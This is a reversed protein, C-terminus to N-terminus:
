SGFLHGVHIYICSSPLVVYGWRISGLYQFTTFLRGYTASQAVSCRTSDLDRMVKWLMVKSCIPVQIILDRIHLNFIFSPPPASSWVKENNGTVYNCIILGSFRDHDIM